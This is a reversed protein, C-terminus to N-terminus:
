EDRLDTGMNWIQRHIRWREDEQVWLAWFRESFAPQGNVEVHVTGIEILQADGVYVEATDLRADSLGRGLQREWDEAIAARGRLDEAGLPSIVADITYCEAMQVGDRHRLADLFLDSAHSISARAGEVNTSM